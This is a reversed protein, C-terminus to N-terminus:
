LVFVSSSDLSTHLFHSIALYEFLLLEVLKILSSCIGSLASQFGTNKTPGDAGSVQVDWRMVPFFGRQLCIDVILAFPFDSSRETRTWGTQLPQSGFRFNFLYCWGAPLAWVTSNLLEALYSIWHLSFRFILIFNKTLILLLM